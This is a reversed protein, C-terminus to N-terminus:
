PYNRVVSGLLTEVDKRRWPKATRPDTLTYGKESLCYNHLRRLVDGDSVLPIIRDTRRDCEAMDAFYEGPPVGQRYYVFLDACGALFTLVTLLLLANITKM